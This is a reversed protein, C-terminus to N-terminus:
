VPRHQVRSLTIGDSHVEQSLVKHGSQQAFTRIDAPAHPDDTLVSVVALPDANKLAKKLRLVPMPCVLGRLDLADGAVAVDAGAELAASKQDLNETMGSM